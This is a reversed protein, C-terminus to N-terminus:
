WVSRDKTMELIQQLVEVISKAETEEESQKIKKEKEETDNEQEERKHKREDHGQGGAERPHTQQDFHLHEKKGWSLQISLSLSSGLCEFKVSHGGIKLM